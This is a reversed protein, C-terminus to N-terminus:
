PLTILHHINPQRVGLRLMLAAYQIIAARNLLMVRQDIHQLIEERKKPDM